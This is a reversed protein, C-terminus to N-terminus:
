SCSKYACQLVARLNGECVPLVACVIVVRRDSPCDRQPFSWPRSPLLGRVIRMKACTPSPAHQQMYIYTSSSSHQDLVSKFPPAPTMVGSFPTVVASDQNVTDLEKITWDCSALWATVSNPLGLHTEGGKEIQHWNALHCWGHGHCDRAPM